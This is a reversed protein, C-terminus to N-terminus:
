WEQLQDLDDINLYHVEDDELLMIKIRRNKEEVLAFCNGIQLTMNASEDKCSTM